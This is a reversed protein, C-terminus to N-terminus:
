KRVIQLFLIVLYTQSIENRLIEFICIKKYTKLKKKSFYIKKHM